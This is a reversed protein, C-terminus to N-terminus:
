CAVILHFPLATPTKDPDWTRVLVGGDDTPAVTISSGPAPDVFVGGPVRALTASYACANVPKAFHVIRGNPGEPTWSTATGATKGGGSNFAAFYSAGSPGPPGAPGHAGRLSRRTSLSIDRLSIARDRIERSLVAGDKIESARVSGPALEKASISNRPLTLAYSTGGFATFMALTAVINGYTVRSRIRKM